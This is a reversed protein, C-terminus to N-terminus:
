YWYIPIGPFSCILIWVCLCGKLIVAFTYPFFDAVLKNAEGADWGKGLRRSCSANTSTCFCPRESREQHPTELWLVQSLSFVIWSLNQIIKSPFEKSLSQPGVLENLKSKHFRHNSFFIVFMNNGVYHHSFHHHKDWPLIRLFDGVLCVCTSCSNVETSKLHHFVHAM